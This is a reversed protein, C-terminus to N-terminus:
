PFIVILIDDTNVVDTYWFYGLTGFLLCKLYNKKWSNPKLRLFTSLDYKAM